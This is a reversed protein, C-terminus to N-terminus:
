FSDHSLFRSQIQYNASDVLSWGLLKLPIFCCNGETEPKLWAWTIGLMMEHFAKSFLKTWLLWPQPAVCQKWTPRHDQLYHVFFLEVEWCTCSEQYKYYQQIKAVKFCKYNHVVAKSKLILDHWCTGVCAPTCPVLSGKGIRPYPAFGRPVAVQHANQLLIKQRWIMQVCMNGTVLFHLLQLPISAEFTQSICHLALSHLTM